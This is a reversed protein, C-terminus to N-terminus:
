HQLSFRLLRAQKVSWIGLMVFRNLIWPYQKWLRKRYFIAMADSSAAIVHRRVARDVAVTASKQKKGKTAGKHHLINVQPYYIIKYGRQKIKWCLDIDEGNLFYAEDYWGVKDMIDKRVLCFAGELVDVEAIEDSPLYGYWYRAFLPSTPFLRDLFSFHSLAVWPTPFSRKADKDLSGDSMVIKCTLAGVDKHEELYTICAPLTDEFVQTDPNLMLIYKGHCYPRAINNGKAFGVNGNHLVRIHPFEKAVMEATDDSGNDSVIVEMTFGAGKMAREAKQLSTLCDRVLNKTNFTVIIVSLTMDKLNNYRGQCFLLLASAIDYAIHKFLSLCVSNGLKALSPLRLIVTSSDLPCIRGAHASLYLTGRM